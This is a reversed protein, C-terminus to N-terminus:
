AQEIHQISEPTFRVMSSGDKELVVEHFSLERLRGWHRGDACEIAVQKGLLGIHWKWCSELGMLDGQIMRDYEEDLQEILLRALTFCDLIRSTFLSLSGAQPLGAREFDEASQNVNLGIGVVVALNKAVSIVSPLFRNKSETDETAGIDEAKSNGSKSEILIGCVKRGQLLVDNPWKIKAQLGTAERITDCVSVAAWATLLAPRRLIPPPFLLVSMLVARGPPTQWSRGHQGRGATQERALIVAGQFGPDDALLTARTSTSDLQDFLQVRRGIHRSPLKWEEQPIM